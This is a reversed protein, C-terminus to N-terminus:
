AQAVQCKWAPASLRNRLWIFGSRKPPETVKLGGSPGFEVKVWALKGKKLGTM